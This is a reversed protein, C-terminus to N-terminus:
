SFRGTMVYLARASSISTGIWIYGFVWGWGRAHTAEESAQQKLRRRTREYIPGIGYLALPFCLACGVVLGVFIECNRVFEQDIASATAWLAFAVVTCIVYLSAQARRTFHDEVTGTRVADHFEYNLAYWLADEYAMMLTFIALSYLVRHFPITQLLSATVAGNISISIFALALAVHYGTLPRDGCGGRIRWTPLKKAWGDKGEIEIELSAVVLSTVFLYTTQLIIANWVDM